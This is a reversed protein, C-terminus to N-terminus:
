RLDKEGNVPSWFDTELGRSVNRNRIVIDPSNGIQSTFNHNQSIKRTMVLSEVPSHVLTVQRCIGHTTHDRM